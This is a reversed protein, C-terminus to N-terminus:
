KRKLLCEELEKITNKIVMSERQISAGMQKAIKIMPANSRYIYNTAGKADPYKERLKVLTAGIIWKGLGKGRLKQHVGVLNQDIWDRQPHHFIEQLGWPHNNSDLLIAVLNMMGMDRLQKETERVTAPTATRDEIELEGRPIQNRVQTYLKSYQEILEEPITDYFELRLDPSNQSGQRIWDKLQNWDLNEFAYHWTIGIAKPSIGFERFFRKGEEEETESYITSKGHKKASEIVFELITAELGKRRHSQLLSFFTILNDKHNEYSPSEKKYTFLNTHGIIKNSNGVEFLNFLHFEMTPNDAKLQKEIIEDPIVPDDPRTEQQQTRRFIHFKTWDEKSATQPDFRNIEIDM